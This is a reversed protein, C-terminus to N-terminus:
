GAKRTAIAELHSKMANLGDRYERFWGADRLHDLCRENIGGPTAHEAPLDDLAALETELGTEGLAAFMAMVYDRGMGKPVGEEELWDIAALSMEFFSAMLGGAYGLAMIQEPTDPLIITGLEAFLMEIEADQPYVIIPGKRRAIPPLPTVRVVSRAPACLAAIREVSAGAVFSVIRHGERFDLAGTVSELHQPRIGLIVTDCADLVQQNSAAREVQGHRRALDTSTRESRPSVLIRLRDGHVSVLGEVVAAALTGTGVIGIRMPRPTEVQM